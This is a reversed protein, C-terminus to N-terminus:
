AELGLETVPALDEGRGRRRAADCAEHDVPAHTAGGGQLPPPDRREGGADRERTGGLAKGARRAAGDVDALHRNVRAVPDDAFEVADGAGRRRLWVVDGGG